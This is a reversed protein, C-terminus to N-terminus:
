RVLGTRLLQAAMATRSVEFQRHLPTFFRMGYRSASAIARARDLDPIRGYEFPLPKRRLGQGIVVALEPDPDARDLPAGFRGIFQEQLYKPPMLFEAAFADAEIEYHPRQLLSTSRLSIHYVRARVGAGAGHHGTPVWDGVASRAAINRFM